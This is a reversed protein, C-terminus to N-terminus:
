YKFGFDNYLKKIFRNDKIIVRCVIMFYLLISILDILDKHRCIFLFIEHTDFISLSCYISLTSRLSLFGLVIWALLYNLKANDRCEKHVEAYEEAFMDYNCKICTHRFALVGGFVPLLNFHWWMEPDNLSLIPFLQFLGLIFPLLTDAITPFWQFLGIFWYYEFSILVILSFSVLACLLSYFFNTYELNTVYSSLVGYAEKGLIGLAISQIISIQTLYIRPFSKIMRNRFEEKDLKKYGFEFKASHIINNRPHSSSIDQRGASNCTTTNHSDDVNKRTQDLEAHQENQCNKYLTNEVRLTTAITFQDEGLTKEQDFKIKM